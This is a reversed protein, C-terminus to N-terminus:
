RDRLRLLTGEAFIGAVAAVQRPDGEAFDRLDLLLRDVGRSHVDDLEQRLEDVPLRDLARLALVATGRNVDLDYPRGRRPGRPVAFEERRFNDHPRFIELTVSSGPAGGLLRRAQELSM